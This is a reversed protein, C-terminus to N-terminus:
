LGLSCEGQRGLRCGTTRPCDNFTCGACNGVGCEMASACASNSLSTPHVDQKWVCGPMDRCAEAVCFWCSSTACQMARGSVLPKSSWKIAGDASASDRQSAIRAAQQMSHGAAATSAPCSQCVHMACKRRSAHARAAGSDAANHKTYPSRPTMIM